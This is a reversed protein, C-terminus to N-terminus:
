FNANDGPTLEKQSVYSEWASKTLESIHKRGYFSQMDRLIMNLSQICRTLSTENMAGRGVGAALALSSAWPSEGITNVLYCIVSSPLQTWDIDPADHLNQPLWAFLAQLHLTRDGDSFNIRRTSTPETAGEQVPAQSM